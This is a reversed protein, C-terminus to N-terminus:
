KSKAKKMLIHRVLLICFIAVFGGGFGFGLVFAGGTYYNLPIM